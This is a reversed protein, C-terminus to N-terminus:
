KIHCTMCVQSGENTKRLFTKNFTGGAGPVGHPDHCSACEVRFDSGTKYLRIDEKDPRNNGNGDYFKTLSTSGTTPNFDPSSAPFNVGVPHDNRLDTGIVFSAFSTAGPQGNGETHCVMCGTGNPGLTAHHDPGTKSPYAGVGGQGPLTWSDLFAEDQASLQNPNYRDPGPMNIISDIATQGDHCSLCSLSAAGPQSVAQTLTSTGLQNYTAYTTAKITRNWLPLAINGNAGHPTHCYVCVERYDNRASDMWFSQIGSLESGNAARQTMNHRTNYITGTNSFKTAYEEAWVSSLSLAHLLYILLGKRMVGYM